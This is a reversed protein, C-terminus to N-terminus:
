TNDTSLQVPSFKDITPPTQFALSPEMGSEINTFYANWSVHVSSPDKKWEAYMKEIYNGSTGNVFSDNNLKWCFVKNNLGMKYFKPNVKNMISSRTSYALKNLGKFM